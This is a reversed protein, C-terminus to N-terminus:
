KRCDLWFCSTSKRRGRFGQDMWVFDIVIIV